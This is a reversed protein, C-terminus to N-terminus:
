LSNKELSYNVQFCLPKNGFAEEIIFDNREHVFVTVAMFLHGFEM